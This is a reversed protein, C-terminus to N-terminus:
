RHPRKKYASCCCARSSVLTVSTLFNRFCVVLGLVGLVRWDRSQGENQSVVVREGETAKVQAYPAAIRPFSFDPDLTKGVGAHLLPDVFQKLISVYLLIVERKTDEGELTSFARLVFTFTAPFRFPQDVAISFLDQSM